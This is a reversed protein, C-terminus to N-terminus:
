GEDLWPVVHAIKIARTHKIEEWVDSKKFICIITIPIWSLIFIPFTAIGALSKFFNKKELIICLICACFFALYSFVLPLFIKSLLIDINNKYVFLNILGYLLFNILGIVQVSPSILFIFMDLSRISKTKFISKVLPISYASLCQLTGTSWRKRQKWSEKFGLPQEDYVIARPVWAIKYNNLACHISFEIDETMSFTDWGHMKVIDCHVMFGTGNVEASLINSKRMGNFFCNMSWYYISHCSSIWSDSPNKSDRYGQAVMSGKCLEKNMETLFEPHVLNDADIICFADYVDNNEFIHKFAFSIVEGKSKVPIDCNIIVAGKLKSIEETNDNCNNPIVVIDFKDSPYNQTQLSEILNGIVNEENRAAVIIAFKHFKDNRIEFKNIKFPYLSVVLFYIGYIAMLINLTLVIIKLILLFQM